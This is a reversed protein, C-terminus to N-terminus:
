NLYLNDSDSHNGKKQQQKSYQRNRTQIASVLDVLSLHCYTMLSISKNKKPQIYNMFGLHMNESYYLDEVSKFLIGKQILDYRVIEEITRCEQPSIPLSRESEASNSQILSIELTKVLVQALTSTFFSMIEKKSYNQNRSNYRTKIRKLANEEVSEFVKHFIQRRIYIWHAKLALKKPPKIGQGGIASYNDANTVSCSFNEDNKLENLSECNSNCNNLVKPMCNEITKFAMLLSDFLKLPPLMGHLHCMSACDFNQEM